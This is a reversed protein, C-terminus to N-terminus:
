ILRGSQGDSSCRRPCSPRSQLPSGARGDLFSCVMWRTSLVVSLCCMLCSIELAPHALWVVLRADPAPLGLFLRPQLWTRDTALPETGVARMAGAEAPFETGGFAAAGVVEASVRIVVFVIVPVGVVVVSSTRRGRLSRRLSLMRVSTRSVTTRGSSRM